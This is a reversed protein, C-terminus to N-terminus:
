DVLGAGSNARLMEICLALNAKAPALWKRRTEARRFLHAGAELFLGLMRVQGSYFEADPTSSFEFRINELNAAFTEWSAALPSLDLDLFLGLDDGFGAYRERTAEAGLHDATAMIMEHVADADAARLLTYERFLAGSDRVNEFDTRRGGDAGRTAYVADHWFIATAILDPRSSLAHFADLGELLEAIHAWTHYARHAEAYGSDLAGWAGPKHSGEIARWHKRVVEEIM